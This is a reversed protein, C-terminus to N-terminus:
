TKRSHVMGYMVASFPELCGINKTTVPMLRKSDVMATKRLHTTGENNIGGVTSCGNIKNSQETANRINMIDAHVVIEHDSCPYDRSSHSNHVNEVNAPSCPRACWICSSSMKFWFQSIEPLVSLIQRQHHNQNGCQLIPIGILQYIRPREEAHFCTNKSQVVSDKCM